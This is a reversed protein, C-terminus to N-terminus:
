GGVSNADKGRAIQGQGDRLQQDARGLGPGSPAWPEAILRGTESLALRGVQAIHRRDHTRELHLVADIASVAQRAMADAGLGALAGLAELRAPVDSLSNAHLTGAGGDHGTNLASLLERVEAGRCEGLILRDPRMRLAERVLRALGVEGAGELNPQRAELSIFHPHDVQLEAVDEIAILRETEPATALLASLLTTKGSGGAGTVLINARSRVLEIVLERPVVDFCGSEELDSISLRALRPLRISLLSGRPSIPPLVAHVRIGDHLRVDICPSAEDIHRGGLAILRVALERIAPEPLELPIQREVGAGKDRWVEGAGNVFVDTVDSDAVYRALPGFEPLVRQPKGVTATDHGIGDNEFCVSHDSACGPREPQRAVPQEPRVAAPREPRVAAPREPRVAVFREHQGATM